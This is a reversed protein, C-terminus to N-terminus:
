QVNRRLFTQAESKGLYRELLKPETRMLDVVILGDVVNSFEPDVNFALLRGGLKLYQRLLVPVGEGNPEVDSVLDALHDIADCARWLQPGPEAARKRFPNRTRVLQSWEELWAHKELFSIMLQQSIPQYRNSISVPGFLVKHEPHAAIYKGIGKWLLLLSSFSRQYESRIWSRGLEIAPGMRRLFTEDYRFLTSTYLGDIGKRPLVEDTAALRYAGVVERKTENWLFLHHYHLDFSDLDSNKGTGEGAARFTIERLRGIEALVTPTQQATALYVHLDTSSTLRQSPPLAAIEAAMKATDQEHAIPQTARRHRTALPATTNQKLSQRRGLLDTRERLYAIRAADTELPELVAASIPNGTCVEVTVGRKNLLERILLATRLIPHVLGAGHFLPSNSGTIHLPLINLSGLRRAALHILRAIQPNWPSERPTWHLWDIHAVEGAPFVLLLGGRDLHQLASRMGSRSEGSAGVGPDVPIVIDRLEPIASLRSNALVKVDPRRQRLIHLLVIGDLIGTPHNSLAVVAGDAPIRKLDSETAHIRIQLADVAKSAIPAAPANVLTEYLHRAQHLGFLRTVPLMGNPISLLPNPEM